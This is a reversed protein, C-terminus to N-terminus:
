GASQVGSIPEGVNIELNRASLRTFAGRGRAERTEVASKLEEVGLEGVRYAAVSSLADSPDMLMDRLTAIYLKDLRARAAVAVSADTSAVDGVAQAFERFGPPEFFAAAEAVREEPPMEEVMAALGRRLPEDVVNVLLERSSARLTRDSSRLGSYMIRFEETPETIQLLRFVRELASLEKDALLASLLDTTATRPRSRDWSAEIEVRWYLMTVARQLTRTALELLQKQNIRLSADDNRMRGLGRLVKLVVVDDTEVRLRRQLISAARHGQFRSITRPLHRRVRRPLTPDDLAKELIGLVGEGLSLVTARADERCDREALMRVLTPVFEPDPAAAMSQAVAVSLGPEQIGALRILAWAYRGPPLDRAAYALAMRLEATGNDIIDRLVDGGEFEGIFGARILQVQATTRVIPSPDEGMRIALDRDPMQSCHARLAAARIRENKHHLLRATLRQVDTRRSTAFIDFARLVVDESPHYLILAPILNVKGYADLMDLAGIVEYDNESSLASILAELSHLDLDPVEIQTEMVGERLNRRFLELYLPKLGYIFGLWLVACAILGFGIHVPKAGATVVALLLVSSLAQGGRQGVSEALGKFRDRLDPPLPFYLIETSTRNLSHRLAGDAGRLLLASGLGLTLVFGVSGFFLLSPLLLLSGNVGFMRLLRPAILVQVVLALANMVAYFRALFTGVQDPAVDVAVQAKFVFDVGTVLMTSVLTVWFLRRLYPEHKLLALGMRSPSRHRRRAPQSRGRSFGPPVLSTVAFITAAAAVLTAPHTVILLAGSLASGLAAGVLGGAGIFAYVRKAQGVDFVDTTLLWFQVVVVTALLGTWVYLAFLAWGARTESIWWFVLTVLAGGFLTTSLLRRRSFRQLARRNVATVVLALAAIAIYALPLRRAPLATLFLTDRATELVSHGAMVGTLTSFAVLADRRDETRLGLLRTLM